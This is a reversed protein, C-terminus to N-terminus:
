DSLSNVKTRVLYCYELLKRLFKKSPVTLLIEFCNYDINM